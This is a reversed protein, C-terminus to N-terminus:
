SKRQGFDPRKGAIINIDVNVNSFRGVGRRQRKMNDVHITFAGLLMHSTEIAELPSKLGGARSVYILSRDDMRRDFGNEYINYM